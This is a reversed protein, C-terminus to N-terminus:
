RSRRGSGFTFLEDHAKALRELDRGAAERLDMGACFAKGAGSLLMPGVRRDSSARRVSSVIERCTAIDLANRKEPRNLRLPLVRGSLQTEIAM